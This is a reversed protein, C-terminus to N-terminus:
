TVNNWELLKINENTYTGTDDTLVCSIGSVKCNSVMMISVETSAGYMGGRIGGNCYCDKIILKNKAGAKENNHYAINLGGANEFVCGEIIYTNKMGFGCGMFTNLYSAGYFYCNRFVNTGENDAFDDHIGYRCCSEGIAISINEVTNNQTTNIPAFYKKVAENNGTYHFAIEVIGVGVLSTGDSLNLGRDFVDDSGAYGSYSDFYDAGYEEVYEALLDYVGTHVYVTIGEGDHAKLAKLISQYEWGNGVHVERKGLENQVDESLKEYGISRDVIESGDLGEQYDAYTTQVNGKELQFRELHEQRVSVSMSVASMPAVFTVGNSSSTGSIYTGSEDFFAIHVNQNTSVTYTEGPQAELIDYCYSNHPGLEGTVANIYMGMVLTESNKNFLNKGASKILTKSLEKKLGDVQEITFLKEGPVYEGTYEGLYLGESGYNELSGGVTIYAANAPTKFTKIAAYQTDSQIFNMNDDYVCLIQCRCNTYVTGPEVKVVPYHGSNDGAVLKGNNSDYYSGTKYHELLLLNKTASKPAVCEVAEMKANLQERVATGASGYTRGDAGVRIDVVEAGDATAGSVIADIRTREVKVEGSIEKTRSDVNELEATLYVIEKTVAQNQVPRTSNLDLAEDVFPIDEEDPIYEELDKGEPFLKFIAPGDEYYGVITQPNSLPNLEVEYWYDVPKSIVEGFKTDEESLFIDVAETEEYVPFDKQLVVKEADKKGFVKIRVLDGAQFKYPVDPNNEDKATVSFFVIDGRNLYISNDDNITFM